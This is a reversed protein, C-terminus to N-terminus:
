RKASRGDNSPGLSSSPLLGNSSHMALTISFLRDCASSTQSSLDDRPREKSKPPMLERRKVHFTKEDEESDAATRKRRNRSASPDPVPESLDLSGDNNVGWDSKLHKELIALFADANQLRCRAQQVRPDEQRLKEYMEVVEPELGVEYTVFRYLDNFLARLEEIIAPCPTKFTLSLIVQTPFETGGLVALKGRGGRSRGVKESECQDFVDAMNTKLRT